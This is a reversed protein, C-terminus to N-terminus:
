RRDVLKGVNVRLFRAPLMLAGGYRCKIRGECLVTLAGRRRGKGALDTVVRVDNQRDIGRRNQFGNLILVECEGDGSNILLRAM